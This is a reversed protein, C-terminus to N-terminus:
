KINKFLDDGLGGSEKEFSALEPIMPPPPGTPTKPPPATQQVEQVLVSSRRPQDASRFRKFWGSSRKSKVRDDLLSAAGRSEPRPSATVGATATQGELYSNNLTNRSFLRRLSGQRASAAPSLPAEDATRKTGALKGNSQPTQAEKTGNAAVPAEQSEQTAKKPTQPPTPEKQIPPPSDPPPPINTGDTINGFDLNLAPLQFRAAKTGGNAQSTM